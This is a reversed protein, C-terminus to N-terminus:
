QKVSYYFDLEKVGKYTLDSVADDQVTGDEFKVLIHNCYKGELDETVFKYVVVGKEKKLNKYGMACSAVIIILLIVKKM